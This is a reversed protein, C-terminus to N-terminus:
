KILKQFNKIAAIIENNTIETYKKRAVELYKGAYFGICIGNFPVECQKALKMTLSNTGGSLILPLKKFKRDKLKLQKNIIDATSITQLSTNYNESFVNDSIGDVEVILDSKIIERASKILEIMNVNSLKKRNLSISIICSPQKEKIIQLQDIIPYMENTDIHLEFTDAKSNLCQDLLLKFSDEGESKFFSSKISAIIYPKFDIDIKLDNAKYIAYNIAKQTEDIIYPDPPIDILTFGSLTSFFTLLNIEDINNNIFSCDIKYVLSTYIRDKLLNNKKSFDNEHNKTNM